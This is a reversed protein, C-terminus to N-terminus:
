NTVAHGHWVVHAMDSGIFMAYYRGEETQMALYRGGFDAVAKELNALSKYTKVYKTDIAIRKAMNVNREM